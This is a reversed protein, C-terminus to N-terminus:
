IKPQRREQGNWPGRRDEKSHLTEKIEDLKEFLKNAIKDFDTKKVYDGAVLIEVSTIREVILRDENQLTQHDARLDKIERWIVNLVFGFLFGAATFTWNIITQDM